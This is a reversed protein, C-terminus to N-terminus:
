NPQTENIEFSSMRPCFKEVCLQRITRFYCLPFTFRIDNEGLFGSNLSTADLISLGGHSVSDYHTHIGEYLIEFYYSYKRNLDVWWCGIWCGRLLFVPGVKTLENIKNWPSYINKDIM